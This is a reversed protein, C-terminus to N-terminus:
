HFVFGHDYAAATPLGKANMMLQLPEIGQSPTIRASNAALAAVVVTGMTKPTLSSGTLSPRTALRARGPPLAVPMLKKVASTAAFRSFRSRTISHDRLQM